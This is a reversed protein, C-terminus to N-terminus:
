IRTAMEHRQGSVSAHTAGVVMETVHRGFEMDTLPDRDQAICDILDQSSAHYYNLGRPTPKPWVARSNDAHAAADVVDRGPGAQPGRCTRTAPSVGFAPAPVLCVVRSVSRLVPWSWTVGLGGLYQESM